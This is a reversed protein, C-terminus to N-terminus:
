TLLPAHRLNAAILRTGAATPFLIFAATLILGHSLGIIQQPSPQSRRIVLQRMFKKLM